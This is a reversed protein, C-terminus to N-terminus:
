TIIFQNTASALYKGIVCKLVSNDCLLLQDYLLICFIYHCKSKISYLQRVLLKQVNAVWEAKLEKSPAQMTWVEVSRGGPNTVTLEFRKVDGSKVVERLGVRNM